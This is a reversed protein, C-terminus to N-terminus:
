VARGVVLQYSEQVVVRDLEFGAQSFWRTVERMSYTEGGATYFLMTMAFFVSIHPDTGTEDLFMDKLVVLGGRNMSRRIRGLLAENGAASIGHVVNSALVIDYPGGGIEEREFDGEVYSLAPGHRERALEICFPIDFITVSYGQALLERAYRGHGGGLDLARGGAPWMRAIWAATEKAGRESRRYLTDLFRRSWEPDDERVGGRSVRSEGKESRVPHGDRVVPVIRSLDGINQLFSTHKLAGGRWLHRGTPSLAWSDGDGVLLGAHGLIRATVRLARLDGPLDELRTPGQTALHEWLGLELWGALVALAKAGDYLDYLDTEIRIKQMPAGALGRM